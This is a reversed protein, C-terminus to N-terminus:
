RNNGVAQIGQSHELSWYKNTSARLRWGKSDADYEVQFTEKDSLESQNATLDVGSVYLLLIHFVSYDFVSFIFLDYFIFFFRHFPFITILRQVPSSQNIFLLYNLSRGILQNIGYVNTQKKEKKRRHALFWCSM